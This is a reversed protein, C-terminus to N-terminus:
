SDDQPEHVSEMLRLFATRVPARDIAAFAELLSLGGPTGLFESAANARDNNAAADSNTPDPLGEFFFSVPAKLASAIAYLKSASIRNAGNEYKQVQQFTLGIAISLDTQKVGRIRRCLRVRAGVHRDVPDPNRDVAINSMGRM